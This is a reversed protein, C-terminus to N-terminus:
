QIVKESYKAKCQPCQHVGDAVLLMYTNGCQPCAVSVPRYRSVFRCRPYESCGYFLDGSKGVREIIEGRCGEAPCGVGIGLPRTYRCKPFASCAVFRGFKGKRVTLENACIPCHGYFRADNRSHPSQEEGRNINTDDFADLLKDIQALFLDASGDKRSSVALKEQLQSLFAPNLLQPCLRNIQEILCIGSTSLRLAGERQETLGWASLTQPLIYWHEPLCLRRSIMEEAVQGLTIRNEITSDPQLEVNTPTLQQGVRIEGSIARNETQRQFPYVVTFGRHEQRRNELQIVYKRNPGGALTAHTVSMKQETMLAAATRQWILSYLQYQEESLRRRVAKPTLRPSSPRVAGYSTPKTNDQMSRQPVYEKGYNTFIYERWLLRESDPIATSATIPFSILSKDQGDRLEHLSLAVVLTRNPPWSLEIEAAATLSGLHFPQPPPLANEKEDVAEVVFTHQRLDFVLAKFYEEHPLNPKQGNVSELRGILRSKGAALTLVVSPEAAPQAANKEEHERILALTALVSLGAVASPASPLLRRLVADIRRDAEVTTEWVVNQRWAAKGTDLKDQLLDDHLDNLRQLRGNSLRLADGIRRTVADGVADIPAAVYIREFKEIDLGDFVLSPHTQEDLRYDLAAWERSSLALPWLTCDGNSRITKEIIGKQRSDVIVLVAM